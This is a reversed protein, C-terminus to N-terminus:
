AVEPNLRSEKVELTSILIGLDVINDAHAKRKVSNRNGKGCADHRSQELALKKGASKLQRLTKRWAKINKQAATIM